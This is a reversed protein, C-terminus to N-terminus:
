GLWAKHFAFAWLTGNSSFGYIINSACSTPTVTVVGGGWSNLAISIKGNEDLTIGLNDYANVHFPQTGSRRDDFLQRNAQSSVKAPVYVWQYSYVDYVWRGATYQDVYGTVYSVLGQGGGSAANLSTGKVNLYYGGGRSVWDFKDQLYSACSQASAEGSVFGVVGAALLAMSRVYHKM